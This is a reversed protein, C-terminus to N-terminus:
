KVGKVGLHTGIMGIYPKLLMEFADDFDNAATGIVVSEDLSAGISDLANQAEEMVAYMDKDDVEDNHGVMAEASKYAYTYFKVAMDHDPEVDKVGAQFLEAMLLLGEPMNTQTAHLNSGQYFGYVLYAFALTDNKETIKGEHNWFAMKLCATLDFAGKNSLAVHYCAMAAPYDPAVSQGNDNIWGSAYYDGLYRPGKFDTTYVVEPDFSWKLYDIGIDMSKPYAPYTAKDIYFRSIETYAGGKGLYIANFRYVAIRQEIGEITKDDGVMAILTDMGRYQPEGFFFVDDYAFANRQEASLSNRGSFWTFCIGQGDPDLRKILDRYAYLEDLKAAAEACNADAELAAKYYAEAKCYFAVQETFTRNKAADIIESDTGKISHPIYFYKDGAAVLEAARMSKTDGLELLSAFYTDVVAELTMNEKVTVTVDMSGQSNSATIEAKGIGKAWIVGEPSVTVVGPDSSVWQVNRATGSATYAILTAKEGRVEDAMTDYGVILDTLGAIRTIAGDAADMQMCLQYVAIAFDGRSLVAVAKDATGELEVGGVNEAYRVLMANAESGSVARNAQITQDPYCTLIGLSYAWAVADSYYTGKQFDSFPADRGITPKGAMRYLVTAVMGRSVSDGPSFRGNGTGIMYQMNKLYVAADYCADGKSIDDYVKGTESAAAAPVCVLSVAMAWSLMFAVAKKFGQKM